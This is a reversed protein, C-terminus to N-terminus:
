GEFKLENLENTMFLLESESLEIDMAAANQIAQDANRAGVLAVTIGPQEITWRIVLQSISAKKENALPLLKNLFDNILQINKDNYAPLNARHDGKAFQHRPKFKGTLIGRGLPSYVLISKNNELMYSVLEKVIEQKIMSYSVQNSVINVYKEAEKFQELNYNSVGAYRIKGSQILRDIAEMSEHIPTTPDSWHIQYLDIYDTNLLRLSRECEEIISEKGAYKYVNIEKGFNNVSKMYFQGKTIDWRLGYKTLIQIKDRPIGKIAEGIIQESAGQGYVPATDISTVGCEYAARIANLSDAHENGGWMWGGAAWAGFSIVSLELDTNGIKRYKM